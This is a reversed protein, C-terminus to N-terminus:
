VEDPPPAFRRRSPHLWRIRPSAFHGSLVEGGQRRQHNRDGDAGTKMQSSYERWVKMHPARGHANLDDRTEWREVVVYLNPDNVSVHGDYSLCGKEKLTEATCAKHGKIFDDKNEPKMPTTAIVYIM